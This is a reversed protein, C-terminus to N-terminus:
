SLAVWVWLLESGVCCQLGVGFECLLCCGNEMAAVVGWSGRLLLEVGECSLESGVVAAVAWVRCRCCSM